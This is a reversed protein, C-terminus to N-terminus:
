DNANTKKTGAINSDPAFKIVLNGCCTAVKNQDLSYFVQKGEQRTEVLGAQRLIALHHSVTPQSVDIQEVIESVSLWNCCCLQMIKQRTADALAKAFLVPDPNTMNISM